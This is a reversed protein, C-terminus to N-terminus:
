PSGTAPPQGAPLSVAPVSVPPVSVGFALYDVDTAIPMRDVRTAPTTPRLDTPVEVRRILLKSDIWVTIPFTATRGALLQRLGAQREPLTASLAQGPDITLAYGITSMGDVEAGGNSLIHVTGRILDLGAFPDGGSLAGPVASGISVYGPDTARKLYGAAGSIMLDAPKSSETASITLQGSRSRLDVVGQAAAAPSNIKIKATGQSLTADLAGTVV